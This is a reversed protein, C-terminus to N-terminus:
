LTVLIRRFIWPFLVSREEFMRHELFCARLSTDTGRRHLAVPDLDSV